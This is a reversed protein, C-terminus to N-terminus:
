FEIKVDEKKYEDIVFFEKKTYGKIGAVINGGCVPQGSLNVFQLATDFIPAITLSLIHQYGMSIITAIICVLASKKVIENVLGGPDKAGFSAVSKLVILALSVALFVMLINVLGVKFGAYSNGAMMSGANFLLKFLPCFLCEGAAKPKPAACTGGILGLERLTWEVIALAADAIAGLIAGIFAHASTSYLVVVCFVFLPLINKIIKKM